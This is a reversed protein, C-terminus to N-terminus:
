MEIIEFKYRYNGEDDFLDENDKTEDYIKQIMNEAWKKYKYRKAYRPESITDINVELKNWIIDTIIIRDFYGYPLFKGELKEYVKIYFFKEKEM